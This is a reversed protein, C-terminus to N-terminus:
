SGAIPNAFVIWVVWFAAGSTPTVKFQFRYWKGGTPLCTAPANYRFNYGTADETNRWPAATQLTDYVTDAVVLTGGVGAVVEGVANVADEEDACEYVALVISDVSAQTIPTDSNGVVRDLLTVGGDEFAEARRIKSM